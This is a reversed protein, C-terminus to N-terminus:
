RSSDTETARHVRPNAARRVLMRPHAAEIMQGGGIYIADYYISDPDVM